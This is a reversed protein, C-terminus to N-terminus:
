AATDFALRPAHRQAAEGGYIADMRQAMADMSFRADAFRRAAVNVAARNWRHLVTDVADALADASAEVALGTLGPVFGEAVGGVDTTVVPVGLAQAEVIANPLGESRSTMLLADFSRMYPVVDEVLGTFLFRDALGLAAVRREMAGRESGDGVVVFRVPSRERRVIAAAADAWLDLGKVPILRAALGIVPGEGEWRRGTCARDARLADLRQGNFVVGFPNAAEAGLWAAHADAVGQACGVLTVNPAQLIARYADRWSAVTDGDVGLEHPNMNHVHLVVRPVGALVGALGGVINCQDLWCHLVSPRLSVLRRFLADLHRAYFAPLFPHAPLTGETPPQLEEVPVGGLLPAFFMPDKADPGMPRTANLVALRVRRGGDHQHCALLALAKEAGGQALSGIFHVVDPRADDFAPPAALRVIAAAGTGLLSGTPPAGRAALLVGLCVQRAALGLRADVSLAQVVPLLSSVQGVRQLYSVFANLAPVSLHRVDVATFRRRALARVFAGHDQEHTRYEILPLLAHPRKGGYAELTDRLVDDPVLALRRALSAVGAFRDEAIDAALLRTAARACLSRVEPCMTAEAEGDLVNLCTECDGDSLVGGREMALAIRWFAQADDQERADHLLFAGETGDRIVDPMHRLAHAASAANGNDRAFRALWHRVWLADPNQALALAAWVAGNAADHTQLADLLESECRLYITEDM